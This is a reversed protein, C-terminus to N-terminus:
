SLVVIKKYIKVVKAVLSIPSLFNEFFLILLEGVADAGLSRLMRIEAPTEYNPGALGCYIGQRLTIGQDAAVKLALERYEKDYAESM